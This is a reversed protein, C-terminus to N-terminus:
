AIPDRRDVVEEVGLPEERQVPQRGSQPLVDALGLLVVLGRLDPGAGSVVLRWGSRQATLRLRALAEVTVMDPRAAGVDCVVVDGGGARLREALDACLDPIDARTVTAGIVYSIAV